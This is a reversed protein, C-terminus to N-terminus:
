EAYHYRALIDCFERNLKRITPDTLHRRFNGPVVQRVHESPRERGPLVDVARVVEEIVGDPVTVELYDLMDRLWDQKNFVVDEYRYIRITSNLLHEYGMFEARFSEVSSLCYDDITACSAAERDALMTARVPGDNPVGHSYRVSFYNSVVMDRPDRVLLIKKSDSLNFAMLYPPFERFGRYCYGNLFILQQANIIENEPLGASFAIEPLAITPMGARGLASDLMTNLLVSGSKHLAFIFSSRDPGPRPMRFATDGVPTRLINKRGVLAQLRGLM